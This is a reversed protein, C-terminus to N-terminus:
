EKVFGGAKLAAVLDDVSEVVKGGARAPPAEVKITKYSAKVEVGYDSPTKKELPKKKAKMINPLSAYRPENLRLDATIICPLPMSLTELGGDIERTVQASDDKIEVKSACLSQPWSLLGALMPGVQGHDGDIAQKGLFVIKADNEEAVAKLLKAITLPQAEEETEILIARDAGMALSTRLTDQAKKDNSISVTIVETVAGSERLRLSEELAIDDFPNASHKVGQTEVGSNDSKVRIKVAYDVARKVPVLVKMRSPASTSLTRRLM